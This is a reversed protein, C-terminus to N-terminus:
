IYKPVTVSPQKIELGRIKGSVYRRIDQIKVYWFKRKLKSKTLRKRAVVHCNARVGLSQSRSTFWSPNGYQTFLTAKWDTYPILSRSCITSAKNYTTTLLRVPHAHVESGLIIVGSCPFFSYWLDRHAYICWWTNMKTGTQIESWISNRSSKLKSPFPLRVM